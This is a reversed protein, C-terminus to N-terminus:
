FRLKLSFQGFRREDHNGGLAGQGLGGKEEIVQLGANTPGTYDLSFPNVYFNHHNFADFAEARFELGFRETLKFNKGVSLDTNWAGPGRFANRRTMNAPFPGFDSLGLTPNDPGLNAPPPVNLALFENGTNGGPGQDTDFVPTGTHFQTIPTAPTLRPIVYFNVLYSEDYISFPIGSRATVIGAISWGGLAQTLVGKGEKYWPTQWIPSLVIRHRVDFDSSGWDLLPHQYDTYGLSGQTLSESFTSSL